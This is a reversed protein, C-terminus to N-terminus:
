EKEKELEIRENVTRSSNSKGMTNYCLQGIQYGDKFVPARDVDQFSLLKYFDNTIRPNESFVDDIVAQFLTIETRSM